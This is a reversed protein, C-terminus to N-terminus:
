SGHTLREQLVKNISEPFPLHLIKPIDRFPYREIIGPNV